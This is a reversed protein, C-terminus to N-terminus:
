GGATTIARLVLGVLILLSIAYILIARRDQGGKTYSYIGPIVMVSVVGYLIHITRGPRLGAFWMYAGLAGQLIILVEGIVLAGWYSGDMGQKRFYRWLGWLAMAIIYYLATNGLRAHIDALAM